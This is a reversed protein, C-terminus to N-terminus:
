AVDALRRPPWEDDRARRFMEWARDNTGWPLGNARHAHNWKDLCSATVTGNKRRPKACFCFETVNFAVTGTKDDYVNHSRPNFVKGCHMCCFRDEHPGLVPLDQWDPPVHLNYEDALRKGHEHDYRSEDVCEAMNLGRLVGWATQVTRESLGTKRAMRPNGLYVGKGTRLNAADAATRAVLKVSSEVLLIDVLQNFRSRFTREGGMDDDPSLPSKGM